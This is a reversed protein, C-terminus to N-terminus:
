KWNLVPSFFDFFNFAHWKWDKIEFSFYFFPWKWNEIEFVFDIKLKKKNKREQILNFMSFLFNSFIQIQLWNEKRVLAIRFWFHCIEGNKM